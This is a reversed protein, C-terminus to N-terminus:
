PKIMSRVAGIDRQLSGLDTDAALDWSHTLFCTGAEPLPEVQEPNCHGTGFEPVVIGQVPKAHPGAAETPGASGVVLGDYENFQPDDGKISSASRALLIISKSFYHAMRQIRSYHGKSSWYSLNDDGASDDEMVVLLDIPKSCILKVAETIFEGVMFEDMRDLPSELGLALALTAPGVSGCAILKAAPLAGRVRDIAELVVQPRDANAIAEPNLLSERVGSVAPGSERWQVDCGAAELWVTPDLNVSVVDLDFLKACDAAALSMELPSAALKELTTSRVRAAPGYIWPIFGARSGHGKILRHVHDNM